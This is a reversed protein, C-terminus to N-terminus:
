LRTHTYQYFKNLAWNCTITQFIMSENKTECQLISEIFKHTQYICFNCVFNLNWIPVLDNYRKRKLSVLGLWKINFVSNTCVFQLLMIYIYICLYIIKRLMSQVTLLSCISLIIFFQNRQVAYIYIYIYINYYSHNWSKMVM